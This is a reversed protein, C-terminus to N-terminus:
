ARELIHIGCASGLGIVHTLGIRAGEVQREGAEGRLHTSVEYINAIGTAGLPHGKSLLGGSVNVPIRGGLAVEGEDIVRGAEGDGCLGLNEYHLIEATAFCDHLEVLDIDDPGLGAMEYAKAAAERTCTNVDPMVLDREQWRDSTMVSARVKVARGMLGLEKAKRESAIVAAASGDVNVSCMLKTNPYSIMEANMVTELPTEIQYMAKPNMTSHHHNKVSVKAFQEFTTGYKRAHEMGAEAFVAPMTGSGLLGEKPIGTAGGAGGLLGKGMQEVGVALVIDYLGAKVSAWAERFATAGTACANSVNVVTIGTQGIQQLIRQGVMGSAQGLNGCYLAEMDQIALGCDDLAMLAAEAGIAPVSKEPFRGFKIMDVGVVYADTM